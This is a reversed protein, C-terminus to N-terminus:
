SRWTEEGYEGHGKLVSLPVDTLRAEIELAEERRKAKTVGDSIVNPLEGLLIRLIQEQRQYLRYQGHAVIACLTLLLWDTHTM